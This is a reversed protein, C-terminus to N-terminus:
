DTILSRLSQTGYIRQPRKKIFLPLGLYTTPLAGVQCGLTSALVNIRNGDMAFGFIASKSWNIRLGLALEFITLM